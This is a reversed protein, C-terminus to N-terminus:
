RKAPLLARPNRYLVAYRTLPNALRQLSLTEQIVTSSEGRLQTRLLSRAYFPGDEMVKLVEPHTGADARTKRRLRWATAPLDHQPPPNDLEHLTGDQAASLAVALNDQGRRELDYFIATRDRLHARSWTWSNFSDELPARGANHDLYADGSWRTAPNELAVEIRAHPAIPWWNHWCATDLLISRDTLASPIVRLRGRLRNMRPWALEDINITLATGDWHLNSPGIVLENSSRTVDRRGRETFAWHYKGAHWISVNLACHNLPDGRGLARALRYYTSFM